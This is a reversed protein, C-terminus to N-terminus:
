NPLDDPLPAPRSSPERTRPVPRFAPGTTRGTDSNAEADAETHRGLRHLVASRHARAWPYSPKLELARDLDALAQEHRGLNSLCVGRGAYASAYRRSM